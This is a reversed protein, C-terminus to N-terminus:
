PFESLGVSFTTYAYVKGMQTRRVHAKELKNPNGLLNTMGM